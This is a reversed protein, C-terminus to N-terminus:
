KKKLLIEEFFKLAEESDEQGLWFIAQKRVSPSKNTKAINILIPVSKESPLQSIAFVASKRVETDEDEEDVVGKLAQVSKESAKQGLWFIAQKRVDGSGDQKAIKILEEVAEEMDSLTLAFIVQKKLETSSEKKLISRLMDLSKQDKFNGLWFVANKRVEISNDGSATKFLFDYSLPTNHSYLTFTITQKLKSDSDDFEKELFRFSEKTEASGLWYIPVQNFEYTRDLDFIHMDVIENKGGSIRHMILLGTMEGGVGSKKSKMNFGERGSKRQIRIDNQRCSVEFPSKPDYDGNMNIEYRSQFVYGTFYVQGKEEKKFKNEALEMKKALSPGEQNLYFVHGSLNKEQVAGLASGAIFIMLGVALWVKSGVLINKIKMNFRREKDNLISKECDAIKFWTFNLHPQLSMSSQAKQNMLKISPYKYAAVNIPSLTLSSSDGPLASRAPNRKLPSRLGLPLSIGRQPISRTIFGKGKGEKIQVSCLGYRFKM